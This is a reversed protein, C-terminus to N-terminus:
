GDRFRVGDFACGTLGKPAVCWARSWEWGGGVVGGVGVVGFGDDVDVAGVQLVGGVRGRAGIREAGTAAAGVAGREGVRGMQVQAHVLQEGLQSAAVLRTARMDPRTVFATALLM